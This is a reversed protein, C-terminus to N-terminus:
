RRFRTNITKTVTAGTTPKFALKLKVKVARKSKLLRKGAKTPKVVLTVTMAQGATVSGKALLKGKGYAKGTVVGPGNVTAAAIIKSKHSVAVGPRMKAPPQVPATPTTPNQAGATECSEFPPALSDLPHGDSQLTDAGDGCGVYDKSGNKVNISDDGSGTAVSVLEFGSHPGVTVKDNGSGINVGITTPQGNTNEVRTCTVQTVSDQSCEIQGSDPVPPQITPDEGKLVLGGGNNVVQTTSGSQTITIDEAVGDLYDVVSIYQGFAQLEAANAAPAMVAIVVLATICISILKKM